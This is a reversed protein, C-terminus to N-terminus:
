LAKKLSEGKKIREMANLMTKMSVFISRRSYRSVNASIYM